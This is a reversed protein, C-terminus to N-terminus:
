AELGAEWKQLWLRYGDANAFRETERRGDPYTVVAVYETTANDYRTQLSVTEQGTRFVM